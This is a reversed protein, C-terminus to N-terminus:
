APRGEEGALELRGLMTALGARPDAATMFREGILFADFRLARLRQLHSPSRLGSEAIAIVGAPLLPALEDFVPLTVELTKLDRSNVGIVDAGAGLARLLEVRNHVEVLSALGADAARALLQRLEGDGLAAVILLVADAGCARAEVIQFDTVIFDKRLLPISVSARVIRLHDPHGDFFAPETLVSIAAAGAQEYSRAIDAADYNSRLVGRSPSRRKCEAIVRIENGRLTARFRGAHPHRTAAEREIEKASSKSREEATRRAAATIAALVDSM